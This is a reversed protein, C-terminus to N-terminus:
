FLVLRFIHLFICSLSRELLSDKRVVEYVNEEYLQTGM